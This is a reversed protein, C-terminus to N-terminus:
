TRCTGLDYAFNLHSSGASMLKLSESTLLFFTIFARGGSRLVRSIESVYHGMSLSPMHTFVSTVFVFDFSADSYPFRFTEPNLTGTPNYARNRVDVFKFRFNPYRGSINANCWDIGRKVVDFGDYTGPRALYRTLPVAMRGVGCGVDLVNENPQLHALKIFHKLFENGIEAFDGEGVFQLEPPPVLTTERVEHGRVKRFWCGFDKIFGPLRSM